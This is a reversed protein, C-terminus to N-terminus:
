VEGLMAQKCLGILGLRSGCLATLTFSLASMGPFMETLHRPLETTLTGRSIMDGYHQSITLGTHCVMPIGLAPEPGTLDTYEM